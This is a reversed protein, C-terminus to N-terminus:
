VKCRSANHFRMEPRLLHLLQCLHTLLDYLNNVHESVADFAPTGPSSPPSMSQDLLRPNATFSVSHM